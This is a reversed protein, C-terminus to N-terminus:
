EAMAQRLADRYTRSLPVEKGGQLRISYSGDTGVIEAVKDTNVVYSRHTRAFGLSALKNEINAITDRILYQREDTHVEVYNRAAEVYEIDDVSLVTEGKGTQVLLKRATVDTRKGSDTQNRRYYIYASMIFVIGLYIKIDKQYEVMLNAVFYTRWVYELGNLPWVLIRLLVAISFHGFAFIISGATHGIVAAVWADKRLPFLRVWHAVFAVMIWVGVASTIQDAILRFDDKCGGSIECESFKGITDVTWIFAILAAWAGAQLLWRRTNGNENKNNTM